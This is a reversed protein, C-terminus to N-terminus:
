RLGNQSKTALVRDRFSATMKSGDQNVWSYQTREVGQRRIRSIETGEAGVAAVVQSYTMGLSLSQYEFLSVVPPTERPVVRTVPLPSQPPAPLALEKASEGERTTPLEAGARDRAVFECRLGNPRQGAIKFPSSQGPRLPRILVEGEESGAFGGSEDYLMLVVIVSEVEASGNNKVLGEALVQGAEFRCRADVLELSTQRSVGDTRPSISPLAARAVVQDLMKWFESELYGRSACRYAEQRTVAGYLNRGTFHAGCENDLTVLSEDDNQQKVTAVLVSHGTGRVQDLNWTGCDCVEPIQVERGTTRVVGAEPSVAHIGFGIAEAAAKCADIAAAYPLPVIKGGVIQSKYLGPDPRKVPSFACGSGFLLLALAVSYRLKTV